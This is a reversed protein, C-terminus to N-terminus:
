ENIIGREEVHWQNTEVDTLVWIRGYQYTERDRSRIMCEKSCYKRKQDTLIKGCVLCHLEKPEEMSM